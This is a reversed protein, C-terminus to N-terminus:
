LAHVCHACRCCLCTASCHVELLQRLLLRLQDSSPEQADQECAQVLLYLHPCSQEWLKRDELLLQQGQLALWQHDDREFLRSSPM